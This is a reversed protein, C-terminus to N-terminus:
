QDDGVSLSLPEQGQKLHSELRFGHEVSRYSFPKGDYPDPHQDVAQPGDLRIAISARLLARNTRAYEETWRLLPLNPTMVRIVPNAKSLPELESKYDKEFEEPSLLFRAAWSACFSDQQKVCKVFGSVSGGCGDIIESVLERNSGLYPAMKLLREVLQDRSKAGDSIVLLGSRRGVKEDEIAKKLTSGEPLADLQISL